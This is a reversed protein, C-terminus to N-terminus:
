GSDTKLLEIDSLELHSIPMRGITVQLKWSPFYENYGFYECIGIVNKVKIRKGLIQERISIIIDDSIKDM